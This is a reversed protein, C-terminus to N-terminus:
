GGIGFKPESFDRSGGMPRRTGAGKSRSRSSGRSKETQHIKLAPTSSKNAGGLASKLPQGFSVKPEDFAVKSRGRSRSRTPPTDKDERDFDGDDDGFRISKSKKGAKRSRSRIPRAEDDEVLDSYDSGEDARDQGVIGASPSGRNNYGM